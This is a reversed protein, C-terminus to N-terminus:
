ELILGFPGISRLEQTEHSFHYGFKVKALARTVAADGLLLSLRKM